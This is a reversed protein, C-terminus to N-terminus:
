ILLSVPDVNSGVFDGSSQNPITTPPQGNNALNIPVSLDVTRDVQSVSVDVATVHQAPPRSQTWAPRVLRSSGTSGRSTRGGKVMTLPSQQAMELHDMEWYRFYARRTQSHAHRLQLNINMRMQSRVTGLIMNTTIIMM